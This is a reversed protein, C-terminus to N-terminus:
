PLTLVHKFDQLEGVEKRAAAMVRGAETTVAIVRQPGATKVAQMLFGACM